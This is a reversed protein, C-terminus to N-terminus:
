TSSGKKKKFFRRKKNTSAPATFVAEIESETVTEININPPVSVFKKKKLSPKCIYPGYPGKRIEYSDFRRMICTSALELKGVIIDLTDTELISATLKQQTNTKEVLAYHGFKGYKRLIDRGNWKGITTNSITDKQTVVSVDKFEIAQEKTLEQFSIGAPWGFFITNGKKKGGKNKRGTSQVVESKEENEMLLLPGNKTMIAKLGGDFTRVRYSDETTCLGSRNMLSEYRDKYKNWTDQLLDIWKEKGESIADLRSEMKATFSDNFLDEFHQIMFALASKGLDTPVLKNKDKGHTVVLEECCPPWKLQDSSLVYKKETTITGDNDKIEVYGKNKISELISSFTSPRGIGHQEMKHILTAETYRAPQRSFCPCMFINNWVLQTGPLLSIISDWQITDTIYPGIEAVHWGRFTTTREQATWLRDKCKVSTFQIKCSKGRSPAMVSQIARRWILSYVMKEQHSWDGTITQTEFHTPRIAEHAEQSNAISSSLASQRSSGTKVYEEGYKERVISSASLRAEECLVAKDTRMYTILGSEYLSQAIRMTQKPSINHIASSQQQLTSTILPPSANSSWDSIVNSAVIAERTSHIKYLYEMANKEDLLTNNDDISANIHPLPSTLATTANSWLGSITWSLTNTHKHIEAERDAVFKLAPTQCRGASLTPAVHKWLIPSITFGIMMDLMARAQQANVISMDITRPNAVASKVARETIEHFVIRPTTAPDIGLLLCVSYSIAEGERDDDSALFIKDASKASEKLLALSKKSIWEYIPTFNTNLGVATLHQKLARIHGMTAIVKWDGGLGRLFGQIKSCKAPSEVVVLNTM